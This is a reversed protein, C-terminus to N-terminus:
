VSIRTANNLDMDLTRYNSTLQELRPYTAENDIQREHMISLQNVSIVDETLELEGESLNGDDVVHSPSASESSTSVWEGDDTQLNQNTQEFNGALRRVSDPVRLYRQSPISEFVEDSM